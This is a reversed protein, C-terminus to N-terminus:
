LCSKGKRPAEFKAWEYATHYRHTAMFWMIEKNKIISNQCTNGQVPFDQIPTLFVTIKTFHKWSEFLTPWSCLIM